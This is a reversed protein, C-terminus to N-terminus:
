ASDIMEELFRNKIKQYNFEIIRDHPYGASKWLSKKNPFLEHLILRNFMGHGILLVKKKNKSIKTVKNMMLLFRRKLSAYNEGQPFDWKTVDGSYFAKAEKPYLKAVEERTKGTFEGVDIEQLGDLEIINIESGTVNKIIERIIIGTQKSRKLFSVLIVDPLGTKIIENALTSAEKKGHVSIESDVRAGAFIGKGNYINHHAKAHRILIHSQNFEKKM